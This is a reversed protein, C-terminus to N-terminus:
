SPNTAPKEISKARNALARLNVKTQWVHGAQDEMSLVLDTNPTEKINGGLATEPVGKLLFYLYGVRGDGSSLATKELARDLTPLERGAYPTENPLPVGQIQKDAIKLSLSWHRAISATGFNRAYVMLQVKTSNAPNDARELAIGSVYLQFRPGDSPAGWLAGILFFAAAPLRALGFM